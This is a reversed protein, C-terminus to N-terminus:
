TGSRKRAVLAVVAIREVDQYEPRELEEGFVDPDLERYSWECGAAQMVPELAGRLPDEGAVIASGTYMLLRGGPALRGVAQMAWDLSLEAGHMDGGERYARGDSAVMYPPNAIVLNFQGELADLGSSEVTEAGTGAHAANIRALRLAQRNVDGLVVSAGPWSAAAVVGGVGSGAGVDVIRGGGGRGDLEARLFSAFRYSDPGFFVADEGKPPYASHLFLWDDLTSVRVTSALRDGDRRLVGGRDMLALIEPGVVEANFPLSWGFVDRLDNATRKDPRKLVRAHTAPTPTVFRYGGTRLASLLDFLAQDDDPQPL